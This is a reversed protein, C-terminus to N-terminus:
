HLLRRRFAGALGVLGSGMLLFSTPEPTTVTNTLVLSGSKMEDEDLTVENIWISTFWYEGDTAHCELPLDYSCLPGGAYGVVSTGEKLIILQDNPADNLYFEFLNESALVLQVPPGVFEKVTTGRQYTIDVDTVLGLTTNMVVTGTFTGGFYSGGHAAFTSITDAHAALYSATVFIAALVYVYSRM